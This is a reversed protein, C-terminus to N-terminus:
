ATPVRFAAYYKRKRGRNCAFFAAIRGDQRLGDILRHCDACLTM